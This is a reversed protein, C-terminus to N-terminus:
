NGRKRIKVVRGKPEPRNEKFVGMHPLLMNMKYLDGQSIAEKGDVRRWHDYNYYFGKDYSGEEFDSDQIHFIASELGCCPSWGVLWVTLPFPAYEALHYGVVNWGFHPDLIRAEKELYDILPKFVDEVAERALEFPTDDVM